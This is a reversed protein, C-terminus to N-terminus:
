SSPINNELGPVDDISLLFHEINMLYINTLLIKDLYIWTPDQKAHNITLFNIIYDSNLKSTQM